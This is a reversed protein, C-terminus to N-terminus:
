FSVPPQWQLRMSSPASRRRVKWPTPYGSMCRFNPLNASLEPLSVLQMGSVAMGQLEAINFTGTHSYLLIIAALFGFDGIRTVIFAKKAANAASPKHFWFGILLYSCLGVLEWFMFALLLSNAMVLGLMATTFLSMAAYYRHYGPDDKMYGQSYIQVMLSVVTVVMLMIGTLSDVMLGLHITVGNQIFVWNIEPVSLEHNPTGLLKFLVIVSLIFSASVTAITTYGALKPKDKFMPKLILSVVAFSLLPLLFILWVFNNQM